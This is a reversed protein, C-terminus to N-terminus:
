ENKMLNEGQVWVAQVKTRWDFPHGTCVVFTAEKGAELTGLRDDLGMIQAPTQTIARLAAAEDMGHQVAIGAAFRLLKAPMEPHDSTIAVQMGAAQMLGPSAESLARLEPKSRDNLFPGSVAPIADHALIDAILHGETAHILVPHLDFEKCIRLATFIDDARHAHIHATIEGHLLPRLAECQLDYDPEDQDDDQLARQVQTDYQKAKYLTERIISATAMRTVPTEDRDHYTHKPNEGFAIKIALPARLIMDDIRRGHTRIAAVQGGIPNASGPAVAVAVIGAALTEAFAGDMPNIGDIARLQPTIPDTDENGDAGEFGLAQEYLGLHTHADLMGPLVTAGQLDLVDEVATPCHAMDGVAAITDGQLLLYGCAIPPQCVPLIAANTLLRQKM